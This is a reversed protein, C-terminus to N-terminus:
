YAFIKKRFCSKIYKNPKASGLRHNTPIDRKGRDAFRRFGRLNVHKRGHSPSQVLAADHLVLDEWWTRQPQARGEPLPVSRFLHSSTKGGFWQGKFPPGTAVFFTHPRNLAVVGITHDPHEFDHVWRGGLIKCFFDVGWCKHDWSPPWKSCRLM